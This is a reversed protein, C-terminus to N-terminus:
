RAQDKPGRTCLKPSMTPFKFFTIALRDVQLLSFNSATV